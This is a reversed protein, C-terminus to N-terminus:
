GKMVPFEVIICFYGEETIECSITGKNNEVLGKAIALGLGTGDQTSRSVDGRYCREFIKDLKGSLVEETENLFFIKVSQKENVLSIKCSRKGHVLINKTLNLFIREINEEVAFIQVNGEDMSISVKIGKENFSDYYNLLVQSLVNKVDVADKCKNTVESNIKSYVFFDDLMNSLTTLRDQIISYYKEKKEIDETVQLMQLYGSISTLPTRIDHSIDTIQNKMQTEHQKVIYVNDLASRNSLDLENRLAEFGKSHVDLSYSVNSNKIRHFKIQESLEVIQKNCRVIWILTGILCIGLIICILLMSVGELFPLDGM